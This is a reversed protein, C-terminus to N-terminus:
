HRLLLDINGHDTETEAGFKDGDILAMWVGINVCNATPVLGIEIQYAISKPDGFPILFEVFDKLIGLNVEDV